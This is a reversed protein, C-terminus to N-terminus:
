LLQEGEVNSLDVEKAPQCHATPKVTFFNATTGVEQVSKLAKKAAEVENEADVDIEWFVRYEM